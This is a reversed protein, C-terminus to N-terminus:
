FKAAKNTNDEILCNINIEKNNKVQLSKTKITKEKTLYHTVNKKIKNIDDDENKMHIIIKLIRKKLPKSNITAEAYTKKNIIEESNVKKPM